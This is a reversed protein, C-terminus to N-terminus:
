ARGRARLRELVGPLVLLFRDIEAEDNGEGLSLRISSRCQAQPLGMAELVRSPRVSGSSCASGSSVAFGALDLAQVLTVADCGDFAVNVIGPARPAGSGHVRGALRGLGAELREGLRELPVSRQPQARMAEILGASGAVIAAVNETGPRLGAEQEGGTLAPQLKMGRRVVLVGCGKPGGAKHASLTTLAAGWGSVDVPIRGPAQVADVHLPIGRRACAAGVARLPQCTGTENNVAMLSVLVTDARLAAEVAEAPVVGDTGPAIWSIRAMGKAELFRATRHVAEHEIGSVVLHPAPHLWAVGRLALNDSETGSATYVIEDDMVGLADALAVRAEDLAARAARGEAHVSSANGFPEERALAARAAQGLPTTAAHDFYARMM